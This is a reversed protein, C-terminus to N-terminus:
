FRMVSALKAIVFKLKENKVPDGRRNQNYHVSEKIQITLVVSSLRSLSTTVGARGLLRIIM